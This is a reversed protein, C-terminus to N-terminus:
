RDDVIISTNNNTNNDNIKDKDKTPKLLPQFIKRTPLLLMLKQGIQACVQQIRQNSLNPKLIGTKYLLRPLKQAIFEENMKVSSINSEKISPILGYQEYLMKQDEFSEVSGVIKAQLSQVLEDTKYKCQKIYEREVKLKANFEINLEFLKKIEELKKKDEQEWTHAKESISSRIPIFEPEVERFHDMGWRIFDEYDFSKELEYLLRNTFLYMSRDNKQSNNGDGDGDIDINNENENTDDDDDDEDNNNNNRRHSNINDFNIPNLKLASLHKKTGRRPDMPIKWIIHDRHRQYFPEEKMDNLYDQENQDGIKQKKNNKNNKKNNTNTFLNNNINLPKPKSNSSSASELQTHTSLSEKEKKKKKEKETSKVNNDNPDIYKGNYSDKNSRSYKAVFDHRDTDQQYQLFVKEPLKYVPFGRQKHWQEVINPRSGFAKFLPTTIYKGQNPFIDNLKPFYHANGYIQIDGVGWFLQKRYYNFLDRDGYCKNALNTCGNCVISFLTNFYEKRQKENLNIDYDIKVRCSMNKNWSIINWCSVKQVIQEPDFMTMEIHCSPCLYNTLHQVMFSPDILNTCPKKKTCLTCKSHRNLHLYVRFSNLKFLERLRNLLSTKLSLDHIISRNHILTKLSLNSNSDPSLYYKQLKDKEAKMIVDQNEEQTIEKPKVLPLSPTLAVEKKEKQDSSFFNSSIPNTNNNNSNTPTINNNTLITSSNQTQMSNSNINVNLGNGNGNLLNRSSNQNTNLNIRNPGLGPISM